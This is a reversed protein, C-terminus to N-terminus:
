EFDNKTKKITTKYIFCIKHNKRNNERLCLKMKKFSTNKSKNAINNVRVSKKKFPHQANATDRPLMWM